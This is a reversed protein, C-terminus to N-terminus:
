PAKAGRIISITATYNSGSAQYTCQGAMWLVWGSSDVYVTPSTPQGPCCPATCAEDVDDVTFACHYLSPSILPGSPRVFEGQPSVAAPTMSYAMQVGGGGLPTFTYVLTEQYSGAPPRTCSAVSFDAPVSLDVLEVLDPPPGDDPTKPAADGCGLALFAAITLYRM